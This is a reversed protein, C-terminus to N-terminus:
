NTLHAPSHLLHAKCWMCLSVAIAHKPKWCMRKLVTNLPSSVNAQSHKSM